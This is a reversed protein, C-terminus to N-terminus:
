TAGQADSSGFAKEEEKKERDIWWRDLIRYTLKEAERRNPRWWWHVNSYRQSWAIISRDISKPSMKTYQPPITMMNSWEAELVVAGYQMKNLRELEREFRERGKGFTGYADEKSKREISIESEHGVISYDGTKLHLIDTSIILPIRKSQPGTFIGQFTYPAQERSDIAVVFPSVNFQTAM